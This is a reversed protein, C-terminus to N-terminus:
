KEAQRHAAPQRGALFEGALAAILTPVALGRAVAETRLRALVSPALAVQVRESRGAKRSM